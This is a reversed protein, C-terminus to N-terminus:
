ASPSTAEYLKPHALQRSLLRHHRNMNFEARHPISKQLRTQQRRPFPGLPHVLALPASRVDSPIPPARVLYREQTVVRAAPKAVSAEVLDPYTPRRSEAEEHPSHHFVHVLTRRRSAPIRDRVLPFAQAGRAAPPLINPATPRGRFDRIANPLNM